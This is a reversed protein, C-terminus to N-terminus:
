PSSGEIHQTSTSRMKIRKISLALLVIALGVLAITAGSATDLIISAILGLVVTLLGFIPSLIVVEKELDGLSLISAIDRSHRPM